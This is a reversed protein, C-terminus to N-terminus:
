AVPPARASAWLAARETVITVPNEFRPLPAFVLHIERALSGLALLNPDEQGHSHRNSGGARLGQTGEPLNPLNPLANQSSVKESALSEVERAVESRPEAGSLAPVAATLVARELAVDHASLFDHHHPRDGHAHTHSLTEFHPSLTFLLYAVCVVKACHKAFSKGLYKPVRFMIFLKARFFCM